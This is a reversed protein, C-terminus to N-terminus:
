SCRPTRLLLYTIGLLVMVMVVTLSVVGVRDHLSSQDHLITDRCPTAEPSQRRSSTDGLALKVGELTSSVVEGFETNRDVDDVFACVERLYHAGTARGLASGVLLTGGAVGGMATSQLVSFTSGQAVLPRDRICM